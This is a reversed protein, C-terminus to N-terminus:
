RVRNGIADFLLANEPAFHAEFKQGIKLNRGNTTAVTLLEGTANGAYVFTESGLHEALEVMLKFTLGGKPSFHQPRLGVTVEDGIKLTNSKSTFEIKINNYSALNVSIKGKEVRIVTAKIFNIKPSGIFGAVFMNDPDDFVKLPPGVQAIEGGRMV